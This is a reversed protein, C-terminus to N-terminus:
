DHLGLIEEASQVDRQFINEGERILQKGIEQMSKRM